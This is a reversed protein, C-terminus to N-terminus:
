AMEEAAMRQVKVEAAMRWAMEKVPAKKGVKEQEADMWRVYKRM